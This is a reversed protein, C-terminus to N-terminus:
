IVPVGADDLVDRVKRALEDASFPKPLYAIGPELVGHHDIASDTYGSMYLAQTGPRMAAVAGAVEPGSMGPMVVDTLLLDVEGTHRRLLELASPGDGAQLVTYGNSELIEAVLRRVIPEDEVLLVTEAGHVPAPTEPEADVADVATAAAPLLIRFSAGLGPESEVEIRGGSQDVIGYV